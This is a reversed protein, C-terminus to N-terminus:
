FKFRVNCHAGGNVGKSERAFDGDVTLGFSDRVLLHNGSADLVADGALAVREFDGGGGNLASEGVGELGASVIDHAAHGQAANLHLEVATSDERLITVDAALCRTM